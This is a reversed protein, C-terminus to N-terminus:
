THGQQLLDHIKNALDTIEFPKSLLEM